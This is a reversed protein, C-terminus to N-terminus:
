VLGASVGSEENSRLLNRVFIRRTGLLDGAYKKKYVLQLSKTLAGSNNIRRSIRRSPM